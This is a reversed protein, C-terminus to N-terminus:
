YADGLRTKSALSLSQSDCAEVDYGDDERRLYGYEGGDYSLESVDVDSSPFPVHASNREDDRLTEDDSSDYNVKRSPAYYSKNGFPPSTPQTSINHTRQWTNNLGLLTDLKQENTQWASPVHCCPRAHSPHSFNILTSLGHAPQPLHFKPITSESAARFREPVRVNYPLGINPSGDRPAARPEDNGKQTAIIKDELFVDKNGRTFLFVVFVGVIITLTVSIAIPVPAIRTAHDSHLLGPPPALWATPLSSGTSTMHFAISAM